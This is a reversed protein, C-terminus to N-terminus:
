TQPRVSDGYLSERLTLGTVASQSTPQTQATANEIATIWQQAAVERQKQLNIEPTTVYSQLFDRVKASVSTGEHLARIRAQQMIHDDLQISLHAM